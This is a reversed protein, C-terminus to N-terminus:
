WADGFVSPHLCLTSEKGYLDGAGMANQLTGLGGQSFNHTVLKVGLRAMVPALVKHMQM